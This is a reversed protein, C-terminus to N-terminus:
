KIRRVVVVPTISLVEPMVVITTSGAAAGAATGSNGEMASGAANMTPSRPATRKILLVLSFSYIKKFTM